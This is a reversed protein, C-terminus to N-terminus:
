PCETAMKGLAATVGSLSYTDTTVTGRRSSGQITMQTGKKLAEVLAAEDNPMAWATDSNATFMKFKAGDVDITVEANAGFGYGIITSVENKIKKTPISTIMFYVPDRSTIPQSYKSDTPTSAVFCMKGEADNSVFATWSKFTGVPTQGYAATAALAGVALTLLSRKM